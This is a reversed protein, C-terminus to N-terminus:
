IGSCGGGSRTWRRSSSRCIRRSWICGGALPYTRVDLPPATAVARGYWGPRGLMRSEFEETGMTAYQSQMGLPGASLMAWAALLGLPVALAVWHCRKLHGGGM